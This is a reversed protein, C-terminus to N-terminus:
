IPVTQPTFVFEGAIPEKQWVGLKRWRTCFEKFEGEAEALARDHADDESLGDAVALELREGYLKLFPFDVCM